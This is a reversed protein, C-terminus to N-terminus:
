RGVTDACWATFCVWTEGEGRLGRRFATDRHAKVSPAGGGL